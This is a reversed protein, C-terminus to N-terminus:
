YKYKQVILALLSLVQIKSRNEQSEHYRRAHQEVETLGGCVDAYTLM